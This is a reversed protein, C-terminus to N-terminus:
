AEHAIKSRASVAVKIEIMIKTPTLYEQRTAYTKGKGLDLTRYTGSCAAPM